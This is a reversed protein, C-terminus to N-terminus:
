LNHFLFTIINFCIYIYINYSNLYSISYQIRNQGSYSTKIHQQLVTIKQPSTLFGIRRLNAFENDKLALTTGKKQTSSSIEKDTIDM